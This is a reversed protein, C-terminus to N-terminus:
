GFSFNETVNLADLGQSGRLYSLRSANIQTKNKGSSCMLVRQSSLSPSVPLCVSPSLLLPYMKLSGKQLLTTKSCAELHWKIISDRGKYRPSASSARPCGSSPSTFVEPDRLGGNGRSIVSCILLIYSETSVPSFHCYNTDTCSHVIAGQSHLQLLHPNLWSVQRIGKRGVWREYNYHSLERYWTIMEGNLHM